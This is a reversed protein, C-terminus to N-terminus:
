KEYKEWKSRNICNPYEEWYGVGPPEYDWWPDIKLREKIYDNVEDISNFPGLCESHYLRRIFYKRENPYFMFRIRRKLRNIFTNNKIREVDNKHRYNKWNDLKELELKISENKLEELTPTDASM